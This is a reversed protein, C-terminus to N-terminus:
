NKNAVHYNGSLESRMLNIIKEMKNTLNDIKEPRNEIDQHNFYLFYLEDLKTLLNWIESYMETTLYIPNKVLVIKCSYFSNGWFIVRSILCIQVKIIVIFIIRCSRTLYFFRHKSKVSIKVKHSLGPLYLNDQQM